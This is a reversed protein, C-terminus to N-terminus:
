ADLASMKEGFHADGGHSRFEALRDLNLPLMGAMGPGQRFYFRQTGSRNGLAQQFYQLSRYSPLTIGHRLADTTGNILKEFESPNPEFGYADVRRALGAIHNIGNRAGVDFLCISVDRDDLLGLCITDPSASM